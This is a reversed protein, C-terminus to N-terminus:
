CSSKQGKGKLEPCQACRALSRSARPFSPRLRLISRWSQCSPCWPSTSGSGPCRTCRRRRGRPRRPVPRLVGPRLWARRTAGSGSLANPLFWNKARRKKAVNWVCFNFVRIRGRYYVAGEFNSRCRTTTTKTWPNHHHMNSLIYIFKLLLVFIINHFEFFLLQLLM